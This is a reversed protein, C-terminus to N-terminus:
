SDKKDIQHVVYKALHSFRRWLRFGFRQRSEVPEGVLNLRGLFGVGLRVADGLVRRQGFILEYLNDRREVGLMGTVLFAVKNGLIRPLKDPNGPLDAFPRRQVHIKRVTFFVFLLLIAM